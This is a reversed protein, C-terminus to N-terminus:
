FSAGLRLYTQEEGGADLGKAYGFSMQIQLNYFLVTDLNLEVGNSRYYDMPDADTDWTTGAEAFLTAHVQDLGVPPAMFGREVTFLPLRYEVSGLRMNQGALQPLGEPYGRLGYKRRNFPSAAAPNLITATNNGNVKAGGLRFRRTNTEGRGEVYRLALVHKGGIRIFERWDAVSVQGSFYSNHIIDSDEVVLSVSRGSSRSVAKAHSETSDYVIAAGAVNDAFPTDQSLSPLRRIDEMRDQFLGFNLSWRNDAQLFPLVMELKEVNTRYVRQTVNGANRVFAHSQELELRFLPYWRDYTYILNGLGWGNDTDYAITANYTHRHLSDSGSTTFGWESRDDDLYFYPFWWRPRLSDWPSYDVAPTSVGVEVPSSLQTFAGADTTVLPRNVYQAQPLKYVDLGDGNYALYFLDGAASVGPSIAATLVNTLTTTRGSQLDLRRINYVGGHESTYLIADGQPTYVPHAEIATDSTLARWQKDALNFRELNWGGNNRWVMAALETGDPSTNLAGVVEWLKGQWLTQQLQGSDSLRHLASKGAKNHVAIIQTGDASWAANRYRACETLRQLNDGNLDVRYIDYYVNANRCYEPQLLLIGAVPHVALRTGGNVERLRHVRGQQDLMMLATRQLGDYAIYYARGDPLVRLPGTFYGAQTMRQGTVPGSNKIREIQPAFKKHLYVVYDDWLDALDKGYIQRANSNIFFPLLNDSYNEILNDIRRSGYTEELFRYFHVGYLYAATGSPWSAMPQNIQRLPKIGNIVENRMMADFLRGQGRGVGQEDNTEHYTAYGEILWRPQFINPFLYVHRGFLSRFGAVKGRAKDLHLIHVYEHIFLLEMWGAHDEVSNLDDPPTAYLTIWNAPFPTAMGNSFDFEDTLVVNVPERPVWDLRKSLRAHVREALALTDRAMEELGTHYHLHFHPSELTYWDLRPDHEYAASLSGPILLLLGLFSILILSIRNECVEM